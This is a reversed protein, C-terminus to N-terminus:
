VEKYLANLESDSYKRQDFNGKQPTKSQQGPKSKGEWKKPEKFDLYYAKKGFFNNSSYPFGRDTEPISEHYQRYNDAFMKLQEETYTALLLNWNNFTDAKAEPRPYNKYTEEFLPTYNIKGRSGGKKIDTNRIRIRIRTRDDEALVPNLQNCNNDFAILTSGDDDPAPYKSKIARRQQHDEWTVFQLFVKNSNQYLLILDVKHLGKIWQEVTETKIKGDNLRFCQNKIIAPKADFRGYDDCNVILRYFLREEEASLLDLTESKCISEKIFRNPM